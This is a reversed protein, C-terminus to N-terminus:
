YRCSLSVLACLRAETQSLIWGGVMVTRGSEFDARIQSVIKARPDPYDYRSLNGANSDFLTEGLLVRDNEDPNVRLYEDGITKASEESTIMSSLLTSEEPGSVYQIHRALVKGGTSLLGTAAVLKLLRRRTYSM